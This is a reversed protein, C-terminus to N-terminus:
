FFHGWIILLVGLKLFEIKEPNCLNQQTDMQVTKPPLFFHGGSRLDGAGADALPLLAELQETSRVM